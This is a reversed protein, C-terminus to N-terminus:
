ETRTMELYGRGARQMTDSHYIIVAGEWYRVAMDMFQNDLAAAVIWSSNKEPYDLQWRTPYHQGDPGTWRELVTLKIDNLGLAHGHGDSDIWKGQSNSDPRQERDLLQFYMLEEGNNFQLSLWNWGMQKPDLVSTSWERDLWSLGEVQLQQEGLRISGTTAMRSYSYYFSANGPSKHSLGQNGQLVMPKLPTLALTLSFTDSNVDILWPFDNATAALSWDELWVKFPSPQVGALGPGARSIRQQSYHKDGAIDTLAVHAMWVDGLAWNSRPASHDLPPQTATRFFTLQYGYFQGQNDAVNGTVYWWENRFNPHSGHDRPFVFPRPKLARQFGETNGGGLIQGLNLAPGTTAAQEPQCANLLSLVTILLLLAPM